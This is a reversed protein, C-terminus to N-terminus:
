REAERALREGDACMGAVVSLRWRPSPDELFRRREVPAIYTACAECFAAHSVFRLRSVEQETLRAAPALNLAEAADIRRPTM